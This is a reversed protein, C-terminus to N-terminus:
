QNPNQEESLSPFMSKVDTPRANPNLEYQQLLRVLKFDKPRDVDLQELCEFYSQIEPMLAQATESKWMSPNKTFLSHWLDWAQEFKKRASLPDGSRYNATADRVAKRADTALRTQEIRCRTRWYEYNVNSQSYETERALKDRRSALEALRMAKKRLKSPVREALEQPM